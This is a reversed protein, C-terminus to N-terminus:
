FLAVPVLEVLLGIPDRDVAVLWIGMFFPKIVDVEVLLNKAFVFLLQTQGEFLHLGSVLLQKNLLVVNM